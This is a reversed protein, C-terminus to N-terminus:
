SVTQILVDFTFIAVLFKKIVVGSNFHFNAIVVQIKVRIQYQNCAIARM